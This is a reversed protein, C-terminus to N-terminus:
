NYGHLLRNLLVSKHFEIEPNYDKSWHLRNNTLKVFFLAGFIQAHSDIEM